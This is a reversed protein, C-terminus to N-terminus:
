INLAKKIDCQVTLRGMSYAQAEVKRCLNAIRAVQNESEYPVSGEIAAIVAGILAETKIYEVGNPDCVGFRVEKELEKENM